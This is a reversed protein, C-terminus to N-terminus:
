RSERRLILYTGCSMIVLPLAQRAPYYGAGFVAWGLVMAVLDQRGKQWAKVLLLIWLAVLGVLGIWGMEFLQQLWDNHLAAWYQHDVLQYKAAQQIQPGWVYFSGFGAGTLKPIMDKWVAMVILAIDMRDSNLFFNKFSAVWFCAGFASVLILLKSVLGKVRTVVFWALGIALMGISTAGKAAFCALIIPVTLIPSHWLVLPFTMAIISSNISCTSNFGVASANEFGSRWWHFLTFCANLPGVVLLFRWCGFIERPHVQHRNSQDIDCRNFLWCLALLMLCNNTTSLQQIIQNSYSFDAPLFYAKVLGQSGWYAVNAGLIWHFRYGIQYGVLLFVLAQLVAGWAWFAEGPHFFFHLILFCALLIGTFSQTYTQFRRSHNKVM